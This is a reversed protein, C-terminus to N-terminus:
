ISIHMLTRKQPGTRASQQGIQSIFGFDSIMSMFMPVFSDEGLETAFEPSLLMEISRIRSSLEVDIELVREYVTSQKRSNDSLKNYGFTVLGVVVTSLLWIMIPQNLISLFSKEDSRKAKL